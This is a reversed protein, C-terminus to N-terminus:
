EAQKKPKSLDDMEGERCCNIKYIKKTGTLIVVGFHLIAM